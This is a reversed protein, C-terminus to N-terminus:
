QAISGFPLFDGLLLANGNNSYSLLLPMDVQSTHYYVAGHVAPEDHCDTCTASGAEIATVVEPRTSDHCIDCATQGNMGVNHLAEIDAMTDLPSHCAMCDADIAMTHNEMAFPRFGLNAQHCDTCVVGSEHSTNVGDATWYSTIAHCVQCIGQPPMGMDVFGYSGAPDFFKVDHALGDPATIESRIMQGYILGFDKDALAPDLSGQVTISIADAMVVQFTREALAKDVVLVLGQGASGNKRSWSVPDSWNDAASSLQYDFSTEGNIEEFSLADGIVGTVLYLEAGHSSRWYVQGQFHPDHCDVCNSSWDGLALNHMDAMLISSHGCPDSLSGLGDHCSMCIAESIQMYESSAPDVPSMEWWLSYSHCQGCSIGNAQNHPADTVFAQVPMAWCLLVFLLLFNKNM